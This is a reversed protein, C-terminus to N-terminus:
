AARLRRLRERLVGLLVGDLGSPKLVGLLLLVTGLECLGDEEKFCGHGRGCGGGIAGPLLLQLDRRFVRADARRHTAPALFLPSLTHRPNPHPRHPPAGGPRTCSWSARGPGVRGECLLSGADCVRSRAGLPRSLGRLLPSLENPSVGGSSGGAATAGARTRAHPPMRRLSFLSRPTCFHNCAPEGGM